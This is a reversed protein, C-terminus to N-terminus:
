LNKIRQHWSGGLDEDFNIIITSLGGQAYFRLM